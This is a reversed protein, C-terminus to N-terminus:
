ELPAVPTGTILEGDLWAWSDVMEMLSIGNAMEASIWLELGDGDQLEPLHFPGNPFFTFNFIEQAVGHSQEEKFSEPDFLIYTDAIRQGTTQNDM